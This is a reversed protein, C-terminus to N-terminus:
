PEDRHVSIQGVAQNNWASTLASSAVLINGGILFIGALAPWVNFLSLFGTGPPVGITTQILTAAILVLGVRRLILDPMM